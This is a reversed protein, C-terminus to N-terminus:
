KKEMNYYSVYKVGLVDYPSTALAGCIRSIDAVTRLAGQYTETFQPAVVPLKDKIFDLQKSDDGMVEEIEKLFDNQETLAERMNGVLTALNVNVPTTEGLTIHASNITFKTNFGSLVRLVSNKHQGRREKEYDGFYNVVDDYAAGNKIKGRLVGVYEDEQAMSVLDGLFKRTEGYLETLAKTYLKFVMPLEEEPKPHVAMMLHNPFDLTVTGVKEIPTNANVERAAYIRGDTGRFTTVDDGPKPSNKIAEEREKRKNGTFLSKIWALFRKITEVTVEVAKKLFGIQASEMSMGCYTSEMSLYEDMSALAEIHKTQLMPSLDTEGVNVKTYISTNM